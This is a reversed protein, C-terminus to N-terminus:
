DECSETIKKSIIQKETTKMVSKTPIEKRKKIKATQKSEDNPVGDSLKVVKNSKGVQEQEKAKNQTPKKRKGGAM